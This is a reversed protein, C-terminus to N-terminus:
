LHRYIEKRHRVFLLTMSNESYQFVIRFDGSRFRYIDKYGLLKKAKQLPNTYTIIERLKQKVRKQDQAQLAQLDKYFSKAALLVIM